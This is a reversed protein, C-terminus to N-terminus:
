YNTRDPLGLEERIGNERYPAESDPDSSDPALGTDPDRRNNDAWDLGVNQREISNATTGDDQLTRGEAENDSLFQYTHGMEHYLVVVPPTIDYDPDDNGDLTQFEPRYRICYADDNPPPDSYNKDPDWADGNDSTLDRPYESIIYPRKDQGWWWSGDDEDHLEGMRQLMQQGTPTSRLFELDSNVRAQFEPSGQVEIFAGDDGNIEITVAEDRDRSTDGSEQTVEDGDGVAYGNSWTTGGDSLDDGRGAYIQDDDAGGFIQDDDLGGGLQDAGAGGFIQDDGAGGDVYDRGAGGSIVDNGDLGYVVDNGAGGLASDNGSGLDVYDSSGGASVFDTGHGTTIRDRDRGGFVDLDADSERSNVQNEGSGLLIRLRVDVGEPVEVQDNGSGTNLVVEQGKPVTIRKTETFTYTDDGTGSTGHDDVGIDSFILVTEGTAPDIEVRVRESADTGSVVTTNGFQQVTHFTQNESPHNAWHTLTGAAEGQWATTLTSFGEPLKGMAKSCEAVATRAELVFGEAKIVEDGILGLDAADDPLFRVVPDYGGLGLHSVTMVQSLRGISADLDGQVDELAGALTGLLSAASRCSGAADTLAGAQAGSYGSTFSDGHETRWSPMTASVKAAFSDRETGLGTALSRWLGALRRLEGPDAGLDWVNAKLVPDPKTDAPTTM